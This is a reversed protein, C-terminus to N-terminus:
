NVASKSTAPVTDSKAQPPLPLERQVPQFEAWVTTFAYDRVFDHLAHSCESEAKFELQTLGAAHTMRIDSVLSKGVRLMPAKHDQLGYFDILQDSLTLGLEIKDVGNERAEIQQYNSVIADHCKHVEGPELAIQLNLQWRRADTKQDLRLKGGNIHVKVREKDFLEM